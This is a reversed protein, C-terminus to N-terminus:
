PTSSLTDVRAKGNDVVATQPAPFLRDIVAARYSLIDALQRRVVLTHAIDGLPGLPMEYVVRDTMRTTDDSVPEFCHEHWWRKYPGRKQEDVFRVDREYETITTTWRIPVRLWRITYDIECGGFIEDGHMRDVKFRMWAPTLAALNRPDSFYAFAQAIPAYVIQTRELENM